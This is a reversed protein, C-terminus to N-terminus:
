RTHVSATPKPNSTPRRLGFRHSGSTHAEKLSRITPRSTHAWNHASGSGANLGSRIQSRFRVLGTYSGPSSKFRIKFWQSQGFRIQVRQGSETKVRKLGTSRQGKSSTLLSM